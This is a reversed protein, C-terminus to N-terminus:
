REAKWLITEKKESKCKRLKCKLVPITTANHGFNDVVKSKPSLYSHTPRTVFLSMKKHLFSRKIPSTFWGVIFIIVKQLSTVLRYFQILEPKQEGVKRVSMEGAKLM